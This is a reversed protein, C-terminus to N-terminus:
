NLDEKLELLHSAGNHDVWSTMGHNKLECINKNPLSLNKLVACISIAKIGNSNIIVEELSPHSTQLTLIFKM